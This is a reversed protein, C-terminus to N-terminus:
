NLLHKPMLLIIWSLPLATGAAADKRAGFPMKTIFIVNDAWAGSRQSAPFSNALHM